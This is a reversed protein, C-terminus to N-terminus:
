EAARTAREDDYLRQALQQIDASTLTSSVLDVVDHTSCM